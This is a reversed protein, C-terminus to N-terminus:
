SPVGATSLAKVPAVVAAAHVRDVGSFEAILATLEDDLIEDVSYLTGDAAFVKGGFAKTMELQVAAAPNGTVFDVGLLERTREEFTAALTRNLEEIRGLLERVRQQQGATLAPYILKMAVHDIKVHRAEDLGHTHLLRTLFRARDPDLGDTRHEFVTIVSEGVYASCCLAVLKVYPHDDTRFVDLREDFLAAEVRPEAGSLARVYRYFTNAHQIEEAAFCSLAHHLEHGLNIPDRLDHLEGMVMAMVTSVHREIEALQALEKTLYAVAEAEHGPEGYAVVSAFEREAPTGAEAWDFANPHFTNIHALRTVSALETRVAEAIGDFQDARTM